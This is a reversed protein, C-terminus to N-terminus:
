VNMKIEDNVSEDPPPQCAVAEARVTAAHTRVPLCENM